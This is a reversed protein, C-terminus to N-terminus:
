WPKQGVLAEYIRVYQAATRERIEAPLTPPPAQKNWDLGDLWDRLVQKDFNLPKAGPAVDDALWFRSSDPTLCEDVLILREGVRGIEFKTDAIVFGKEAAYSRGREYIALALARAQEACDEGVLEQCREFSIPEDHEGHEAKSSPTLIPADFQSAHELGEPLRVGSIAGDANYDKYGSGTLYGRVVWEVPLVEAKRCRMTRGRLLDRSEEPVDDWEDVDTSLLHNDCLDRTIRFWFSSLGTLVIGKGPIGERMVVDFASVRDTTVLLLDDGLEFLERVKGSSIKRAFPLDVQLIETPAAPTTASMLLIEQCARPPILRDKM